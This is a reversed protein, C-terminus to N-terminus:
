KLQMLYDTTEATAKRELMPATSERLESALVAVRSEEMHVITSQKFKEHGHLGLISTVCQMRVSMNKSTLLLVLLSTVPADYEPDLFKEEIKSDLVNLDANIGCVGTQEVADRILVAKKLWDFRSHRMAGTLEPHIHSYLGLHAYSACKEALTMFMSFVFGNDVSLAYAIVQSIDDEKMNKFLDQMGHVGVCVCCEEAHDNNGEKYQAIAISAMAFVPNDRILYATFMEIEKYPRNSHLGISVCLPFLFRRTPESVNELGIREPYSILQRIYKNDGVKKRADVLRLFSVMVYRRMAHFVHVPMRNMDEPLLPSRAMCDDFIHSLIRDNHKKRIVAVNIMALRNLTVLRIVEKGSVYRGCRCGGPSEEFSRTAVLTEAMRREETNAVVEPFKSLVVNSHIVRTCKDKSISAAYGCICTSAVGDVIESLSTSADNNNAASLNVLTWIFFTYLDDRDRVRGLLQKGDECAQAYREKEDADSTNELEYFMSVPCAKVQVYSEADCRSPCPATDGIHLFCPVCMYHACGKSVPIRLGRDFEELCIPCSM